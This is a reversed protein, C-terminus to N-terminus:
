GLQIWKLQSGLTPLGLSARTTETISRYGPPPTQDAPFVVYSGLPISYLIQWEGSAFIGLGFPASNKIWIRGRDETGPTSPSTIFNSNFTTESEPIGIHRALFDLLKKGTEDSLADCLSENPGPNAVSLPRFADDPM